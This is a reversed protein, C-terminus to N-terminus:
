RLIDKVDGKLLLIIYCIQAILIYPLLIGYIMIQLLTTILFFSLSGYPFLTVFYNIVYIVVVISISAIYGKFPFSKGLGNSKIRAVLYLITLLGIISLVISTLTSPILLGSLLEPNGIALGSISKYELISTSNLAFNGILFLTVLTAAVFTLVLSKDKM